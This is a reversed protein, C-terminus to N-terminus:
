RSGVSRRRGEAGSGYLEIEKRYAGGLLKHIPKNVAKGMLDWLAIDVGSIAELFFGSLHGRLRMTSYMKEWLLQVDFPDEGIVIPALLREIITQVTQPAVPAKAEGWGVLGDDTTLKVICTDITNSYSARMRWKLPYELGKRVIISNEDTQRASVWSRKGWYEQQSPNVAQIAIAEVKAIKM